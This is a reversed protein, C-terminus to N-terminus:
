AQIERSKSHFVPSNDIVQLDLIQKTKAPTSPCYGEQNTFSGLDLHKRVVAESQSNDEKEVAQSRSSQVQGVEMDRGQGVEKEGMQRGEKNRLMDGQEGDLATKSKKVSEDLDSGSYQRKRDDVGIDPRGPPPSSTLSTRRRAELDIEPLGNPLIQYKWRGNPM